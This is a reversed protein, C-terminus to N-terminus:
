RIGPAGAPLGLAESGFRLREFFSLVGALGAALLFNREPPLRRVFLSFVADDTRGQAHYAALMTLEYQDVLLAMNADHVWPLGDEGSRSDGGDDERGTMHRHDM